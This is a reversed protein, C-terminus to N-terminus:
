ELGTDPAISAARAAEAEPPLEDLFELMSARLRFTAIRVFKNHVSALMGLDNRTAVTHQFALVAERMHALLNVWVAVAQERIATIAADMEGRKKREQQESILKHLARGCQWARAYPDLFKSQGYWYGLRERETPTSASDVLAKLRDIAEAQTAV